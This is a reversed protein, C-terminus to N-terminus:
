PSLSLCLSVAHWLVSVLHLLDPVQLEACLCPSVSLSLSLCCAICLVSVLPLLDPVQLEERISKQPCARRLHSFFHIDQWM